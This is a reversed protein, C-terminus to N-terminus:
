INRKACHRPILALTHTDRYVNLLGPAVLLDTSVGGPLGRSLIM